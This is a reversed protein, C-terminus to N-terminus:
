KLFLKRKKSSIRLHDSYIQDKRCCIRELIERLKKYVINVTCPKKRRMCHSNLSCQHFLFYFKGWVNPFKSPDPAFDYIVLSRRMFPSFIQANGWINPVGEEYIVKCRIGDSNGQIHPFNQKRKIILNRNFFNGFRTSDVKESVTHHLWYGAREIAEPNLNWRHRLKANVKQVYFYLYQLNYTINVFCIYLSHQM